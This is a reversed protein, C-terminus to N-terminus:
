GSLGRERRWEPTVPYVEDKESVAPPRRTVMEALVRADAEIAEFTVPQARIAADVAWMRLELPLAAWDADLM